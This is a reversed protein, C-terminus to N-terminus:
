RRHSRVAGGDARLGGGHVERREVAPQTAVPSRTGADGILSCPCERDYRVLLALDKEGASPSVFGSAETVLAELDFPAEELEINGSAVRSYDLIDNIIALLAEGSGRVAEAYERQEDDLETDLLLGSMGIVGNMPTRIEHSMTALFSSKAETAAEAAAAVENASLLAQELQADAIAQQRTTSVYPLWLLFGRFLLVFGLLFGLFKEVFAQQTTDGIIIFHNLHEFNDTIDVLSGLLLLAFGAAVIKWGPQGTFGYSRGQTLVTLLIAAVVASRVIELPVDWEWSPRLVLLTGLVTGAMLIAIGFLDVPM